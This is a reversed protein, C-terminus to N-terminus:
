TPTRVTCTSHRTLYTRLQLCRLLNSTPVPIYTAWLPVSVCVYTCYTRRVHMNNHMYGVAKVDINVIFIGAQFANFGGQTYDHTPHLTESNDSTTTLSYHWNVKLQQTIQQSYAGVHKNGYCSGRDYGRVYTYVHMSYTYYACEGPYATSYSYATNTPTFCYFNISWVCCSDNLLVLHKSGDIKLLKVM